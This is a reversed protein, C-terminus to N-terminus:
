PDLEVRDAVFTAIDGLAVDNARVTAADGDFIFEATGRQIQGLIQYEIRFRNDLVWSGRMAVPLVSDVLYRGDLGVELSFIGTADQFRYVATGGEFELEFWENGEDNERYEFRVGDVKAALEPLEQSTPEPGARTAETAAALRGQAATDSPLPSDGAIAPIIYVNTLQRPLSFRDPSLGSTFTVVLDHDPDVVIYQGGFGLAMAYGADSIWWQYGYGSALTGAQIQDRTSDEVWTEPILQRGEWEGERLFLYGFKAMDAPRLLLEGWGISVGDPNAPWEYETIGLPEFLVEAAYDSAAMGTAESIIASLLLSSGNCYEFRVGPSEAMPLSLIHATWDDSARMEDLGQWAYLYSDRCQLGTTMTLLSEVTMAAKEASPNTPAAEALIAVAPTDVGDILDANIAKGILASVVSKTCSHLNHKTDEPFPYVVADLVLYGNRIVTVSDIGSAPLQEVLDALGASDMGQEEPTSVPWGATPWPAPEFRAPPETSTSISTTTTIVAETTATPPTTTAESAGACAGALLALAGLLVLWRLDRSTGM